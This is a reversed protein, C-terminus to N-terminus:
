SFPFCHFSRCCRLVRLGCEQSTQFVVVRPYLLIHAETRFSVSRLSITDHPLAFILLSLTVGVNNSELLDKTSELIGRVCLSGESFNDEKLAKGVVFVNDCKQVDQLGIVVLVYVKHEFIHTHLPLETPALKTFCFSVQVSDNACVNQFIHVLTVDDILEQLTELVHVTGSDDM